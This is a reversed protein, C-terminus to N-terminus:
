VKVPELTTTTTARTTARAILRGIAPLQRQAEAAGAQIPQEIENLALLKRRALDPQIVLLSNGYQHQLLQLKVRNLERSVITEAQLLLDLSTVAGKILPASADVAIVVDAGLAFAVDIPVKNIVGGDILFRGQHHVPYHIGPLAVSAAIAPALPGSQLIIQEGTDIDAAVAAFPIKLEEFSSGKTLLRVFEEFRQIEHPRSSRWDTQKYLYESTARGILRGLANRPFALLKNLDLQKIIAELKDLNIGSAVAGGLVAGMSTGAVVDIPIGERRLVRIVGLHAYGRAGGGGLALGVRVRKDSIFMIFLIL